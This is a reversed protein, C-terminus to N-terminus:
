SEVLGHLYIHGQGQFLFFPLFAGWDGGMLTLGGSEMVGASWAQREARQVPRDKPRFLINTKQIGGVQFSLFSPFFFLFSIGGFAAWAANM